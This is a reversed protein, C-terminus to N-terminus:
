KATVLLATRRNRSKCADTDNAPCVPHEAGYGQSDLREADVGLRVFEQAVAKARESSHKKNDDATGTNDTYVGIKVSVTPYAKLIEFVNKMQHTSVDSHIDLGDASYHLHDFDFWTKKDVKRKPDEIFEILRQEVGSQAGLIEFSTPLVHTYPTVGTIDLEHLRVMREFPWVEHKLEIAIRDIEDIDDYTSAVDKAVKQLEERNGSKVASDLRGSLWQVKAGVIGMGEDTNYFKTRVESFGPLNSPLPDFQKHLATYTASMASVRPKLGELSQRVSEETPAPGADNAAGTTATAANPNGEDTKDRHCGVLSGSGAALSM